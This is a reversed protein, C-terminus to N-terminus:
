RPELISETARPQGETAAVDAERRHYANRAKGVALEAAEVSIGADSAARRAAEAAAEAAKAAELAQEALDHAIASAREAERWAALLSATVDRTM